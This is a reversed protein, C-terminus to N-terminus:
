PPLLSACGFVERRAGGLGAARRAWRSCVKRRGGLGWGNQM